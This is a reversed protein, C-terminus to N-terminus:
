EAASEFQVSFSFFYLISISFSFVKRDSGGHGFSFM